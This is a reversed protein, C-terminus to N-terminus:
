LSGMSCIAAAEEGGAIFDVGKGREGREFTRTSFMVSDTRRKSDKGGAAAM